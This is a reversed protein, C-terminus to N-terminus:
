DLFSELSLALASTRRLSKLSVLGLLVVCGQKVVCWNLVLSKLELKYTLDFARLIEGCAVHM